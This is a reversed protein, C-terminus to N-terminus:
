MGISPFILFIRLMTTTIATTMQSSYAKPTSPWGPSIRTGTTFYGRWSNGGDGPATRSKGPVMRERAPVRVPRRRRIPGRAPIEKPDTAGWPEGAANPGLKADPFVGSGTGRRDGPM